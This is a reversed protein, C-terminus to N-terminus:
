RKNWGFDTFDKISQESSRSAYTEEFVVEVEGKTNVYVAEVCLPGGESDADNDFWLGKHWTLCPPLEPAVREFYLWKDLHKVSLRLMVIPQESASM